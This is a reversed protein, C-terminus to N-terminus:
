YVWLKPSKKTKDIDIHVFNGKSKGALGVRFPLKLEHTLEMAYFVFKARKQSDSLAIDAALGKLHASTKSTHYGRKTLDDHYAQSRYGSTIRFPGIECRKRLEDIFLLFEKDMNKGSDKVDPSDFESIKFYKM